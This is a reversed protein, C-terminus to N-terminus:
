EACPIPVEVIDAGRRTRITCVREAEQVVVVEEEIGLLTGQDIAVDATLEDEQAGVLSLQLRGTAQAQALEAVEVPSAEVTVTRAVTPSSRDQDASQDIAIIKMATQILKTFERTGGAETVNSGTWYVDVRDGPRLFGSVGSAVDVRIAFARMGPSLKSSVGAAEGPDTVKVAMIAEGPEMARLVSRPEEGEPFLVALDTFTGEPVAEVPWRVARVHEQTLREGYRVAKAAIVVETTPVIQSRAARERALESEHAQIYGQAMYVAFGALGLGLLLVLGFVLRM